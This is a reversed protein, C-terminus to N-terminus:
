ITERQLTKMNTTKDSEALIKRVCESNSVAKGTFPEVFDVSKDKLVKRRKYTKPLAVGDRVGISVSSEGYLKKPRGTDADQLSERHDMYPTCLVPNRSSGESKRSLQHLSPFYMAAQKEQTPVMRQKWSETDFMCPQLFSLERTEPVLNASSNGSDSTYRRAYVLNRGFGNGERSVNSSGAFLHQEQLSTILASSTVAGKVNRTRSYFNLSPTTTDSICGVKQQVMIHDLPDPIRNTEVGGVTDCPYISEKCARADWRNVASPLYSFKSTKSFPTEILPTVQSQKPMDRPQEQQNVPGKPVLKLLGKPASRCFVWDNLGTPKIKLVGKASTNVPVLKRENSVPPFLAIPNLAETDVTEIKKSLPFMNEEASVENCFLVEDEPYANLDLSNVGENHKKREKWIPIRETVGINPDCPDWLRRMDSFISVMNEHYSRLSHYYASRQLCHLGEIYCRVKANYLGGKLGRFFETLPSGFLMDSGGLLETMTLWFTHQDMDPLYASLILKDEETLCCNWTELSLIDRLDSLDFLEYPINFIQGQFMSLESGVESLECGGDDGSDDELIRMEERRLDDVKPSYSNHELHKGNPSVYNSVKLIGM